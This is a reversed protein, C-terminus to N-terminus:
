VLEVFLHIVMNVQVRENTVTDKDREEKTCVTKQKLTNVTWKDSAAIRNRTRINYNWVQQVIRNCM